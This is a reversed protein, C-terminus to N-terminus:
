IRSNQFKPTHNSSQYVLYALEALHCDNGTKNANKQTTRPYIWNEHAYM